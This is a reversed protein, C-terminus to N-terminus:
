ICQFLVLYLKVQKESLTIKCPQPVHKNKLKEFIQRFDKVLKSLGFLYIANTENYLCIDKKYDDRKRILDELDTWEKTFKSSTSQPTYTITALSFQNNILDEIKQEDVGFQPNTLDFYNVYVVTSSVKQCTCILDILNFHHQIV